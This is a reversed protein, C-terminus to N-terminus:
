PKYTKDWIRGWEEPTLLPTRINRKTRIKKDPSKWAKARMKEAMKMSLDGIKQFEWAYQSLSIHKEKQNSM